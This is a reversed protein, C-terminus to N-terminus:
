NSAEIEVDIAKKKAFADRAASWAKAGARFGLTYSPTATVSPGRADNAAHVFGRQFDAVRRRVKQASDPDMHEDLRAQAEPSRERKKSQAETPNKDAM